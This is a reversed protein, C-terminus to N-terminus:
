QSFGTFVFRYAPTTSDYVAEFRTPYKVGAPLNGQPPVPLTFSRREQLMARSIM